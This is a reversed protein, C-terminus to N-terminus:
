GSEPRTANRPVSDSGTRRLVAVVLVATGAMLAASITATLQFGTTFADRAAALLPNGLARPLGDAAMAAAGLTDRAAAAVEDPVGVPVGGAMEGRYAVTIM